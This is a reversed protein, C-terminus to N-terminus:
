KWTALDKMIEDVESQIYVRWRKGRLMFFELEVGAAKKGEWTLPCVQMQHETSASLLQLSPRRGKKVLWTKVTSFKSFILKVTGDM